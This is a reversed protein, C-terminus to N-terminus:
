GPAPPPPPPPPPADLMALAAAQEAPYRRAAMAALAAGAAGGLRAALRGVYAGRAAYIAAILAADYGPATRATAADARAVGAAIIRAAAGHQVACSWAVDRVAAARGALDLGTRALVEAVVPRYHTRAIFAHQAAGFRGPDRAAIAQWCRSFAASGPEAPAFAAAWDRGEAALFAAVTGTRSALQYLGYSVGGPDSRGSSVTGPGRGGSEYRESLRGLANPVGPPAAAVAPTTRTAPRHTRIPDM